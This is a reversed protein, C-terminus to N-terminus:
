GVLSTHGNVGCVQLMAPLANLIQQSEESDNNFANRLDDLALDKNQPNLKRVLSGAKKDIQHRMIINFAVYLFRPHQAFRMDKYLM